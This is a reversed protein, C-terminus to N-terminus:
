EDEEYREKIERMLREVRRLSNVTVKDTDSPNSPFGIIFLGIDNGLEYELDNWAAEYDM